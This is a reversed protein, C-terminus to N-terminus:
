GLSAFLGLVLTPWIQALVREFSTNVLWQIDLTSLLYVAVYSALMLLAAFIVPRASRGAPTAALVASTAVAVPIVGHALPGGWTRAREWLLPMVIHYRQPNVLVHLTHALGSQSDLYPPPVPAIRLKFWVVTALVPAAGAVWWAIDRLRGRRYAFALVLVAAIAVFVLGENKTWASLGALLGAAILMDRRAAADRWGNARQASLLALTSVIFFATPVDAQQAVAQHLFTAPAVLVAGAVWARPRRPDLAGVVVCVIGVLLGVDVLLPAITVESGAYAWLRAVASPVLLPHGPNSFGILLENTWQDGGRLLFRAKQNWIAWADWQGHPAAHYEALITAVALAAVVVFAARAIWVGATARAHENALVARPAARRGSQWAAAAIAVWVVVDIAVFARGPHVGRFILWSTFLGSLGIGGGLAIGATVLPTAARPIWARVAAWVAVAPLLWGVVVGIM